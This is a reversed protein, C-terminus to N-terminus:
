KAGYKLLMAAIENFGRKNAWALPSAWSPSAPLNPDAGHNLLFEVMNKKGYKVAYGLPTSRFEDDVANVDASHDIFIAANNLDDRQAFRHLPTIGLWHRHNPNMGHQFLFETLEKSKVPDASGQSRVGVGIRTALDSQYDLMLRVFSDHGQGAANELAYADNAM